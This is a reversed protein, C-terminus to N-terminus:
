RLLLRVCFIFLFIFLLRVRYDGNLSSCWLKCCICICETRFISLQRCRRLHSTYKPRGCGRVMRMVDNEDDPPSASLRAGQGRAPLKKLGRPCHAYLLAHALHIYVSRLNFGTNYKGHTCDPRTCPSSTILSGFAHAPPGSRPRLGYM